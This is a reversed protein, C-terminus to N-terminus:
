NRQREIPSFVGSAFIEYMRMPLSFLLLFTDSYSFLSLSDLHRLLKGINVCLREEGYEAASAIFSSTGREFDPFRAARHHSGRRARSTSIELLPRHRRQRLPHARRLSSIPAAHPVALSRPVPQTSGHHQLLFTLRGPIHGFQPTVHHAAM